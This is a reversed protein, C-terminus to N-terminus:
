CISYICDEYCYLDLDGNPMMCAYECQDMAEQTCSSKQTFYQLHLSGAPEGTIATTRAAEKYLAPMCAQVAMVSFLIALLAIAIWAPKLSSRM